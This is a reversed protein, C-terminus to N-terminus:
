QPSFIGSLAIEDLSGVHLWRESLDKIDGLNDFAVLSHKYLWNRDVSSEQFQEKLQKESISMLWLDPENNIWIQLHLWLPCFYTEVRASVFSYPPPARYDDSYPQPSPYRGNWHVLPGSKIGLIGLIDAMSIDKKM